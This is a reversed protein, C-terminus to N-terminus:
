DTGAAARAGGSPVRLQWLFCWPRARRACRGPV